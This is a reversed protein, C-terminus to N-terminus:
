DFRGGYDFTLLNNHPETHGFISWRDTPLLNEHNEGAAASPLASRAAAKVSDADSYVRFQQKQGLPARSSILNM